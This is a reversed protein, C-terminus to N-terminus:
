RRKLLALILIVAPWYRQRVAHELQRKVRQIGSSM